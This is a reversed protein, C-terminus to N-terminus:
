KHWGNEILKRAASKVEKINACYPRMENILKDLLAEREAAERDEAEFKQAYKGLSSPSWSWLCCGDRFRKNTEELVQAAYRMRKPLTSLDPQESM